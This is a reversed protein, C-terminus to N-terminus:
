NGGKRCGEKTRCEPCLGFVEVQAGLVEYQNEVEDPISVKHDQMIDLISGCGLCLLHHHSGTDPDYHKRGPEITLEVIQGADRLARLTNYVTARSMTPFSERVAEFLNEATPHNRNGELREVIALRQPTRKLGAKELCDTKM